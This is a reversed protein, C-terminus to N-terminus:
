VVSKRDVWIRLRFCTWGHKMFLAIADVPKGDDLYVGGRAEVQALSSIDAGLYFPNRSAAPVPQRIALAAISLAAWVSARRLRM